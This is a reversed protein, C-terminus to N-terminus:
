SRRALFGSGSRNSDADLPHSAPISPLPLDRYKADVGKGSGDLATFLMAQYYCAYGVAFAGFGLALITGIVRLAETGQSHWPM